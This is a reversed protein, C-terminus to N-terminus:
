TPLWKLFKRPNNDLGMAKRESLKLLLKHAVNVATAKMSFTIETPEIYSEPEINFSPIKSALREGISSFYLNLVDAMAPSETIPQERIENESINKVKNPHRSFM